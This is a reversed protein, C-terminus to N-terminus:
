RTVTDNMSSHICAYRNATPELDTGEPYVFGSFGVSKGVYLAEGSYTKNNGLTIPTHFLRDVTSAAVTLIWPATNQVNYAAPGANGGACVVTIGKAVAHYSGTAIGDREDVEAFVPISGGISLSLVDVGDHIAEDFAKLMDASACQGGGVNWCVKYMALRARPAGGRLTGRGLGKYSVNYVLSGAATSATHTGHGNADRPSMYEDSSNFQGYEAEIGKVFYKAGILKKNCNSPNFEQGTVCTGNWKEPIPGLGEDGFARSEPWM